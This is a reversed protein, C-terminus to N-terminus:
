DEEEVREVEVEEAGRGAVVMGVVEWEVEASDVEAQAAKATEAAPKEAVAQSDTETGEARPETVETEVAAVLRGM